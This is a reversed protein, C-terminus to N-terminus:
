AIEAVQELQVSPASDASTFLVMAAGARFGPAGAAVIWQLISPRVPEREPFELDAIPRLQELLALPTHGLGGFKGATVALPQM